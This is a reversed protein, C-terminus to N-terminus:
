SIFRSISSSVSTMERKEIGLAKLLRDIFLENELSQRNKSIQDLTQQDYAIDPRFSFISDFNSDMDENHDM